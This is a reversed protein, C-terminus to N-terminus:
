LCVKAKGMISDGVGDAYGQAKAATTETEGPSLLDFFQAGREFLRTPLPLKMGHPLECGLTVAHLPTTYTYPQAPHVPFDRAVPNPAGKLPFVLLLSPRM